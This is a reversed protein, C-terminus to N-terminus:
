QGYGEPAEAARRAELEDNLQNLKLPDVGARFGSNFTAVRFPERRPRRLEQAALGRRLVDNVTQKFSTQSREALRKLKLAVDDDLTLTTRMYVDHHERM